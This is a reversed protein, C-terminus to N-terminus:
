SGSPDPATRTSAVSPAPPWESRNRVSRGPRRTIPSSRSGVGQLDCTGAQLAVGVAEGGYAGPVVSDIRRQDFTAMRCLLGDVAHQEVQAHRRHLQIARFPAEGVRRVRWQVHPHVRVQRQGRGVDEVSRRAPASASGARTRRPATRSRPDRGETTRRRCRCITECWRRVRRAARRRSGPARGVYRRGDRWACRGPVACRPSRRVPTAAPM